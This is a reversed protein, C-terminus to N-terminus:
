LITQKGNTRLVLKTPEEVNYGQNTLKKWQEHQYIYQMGRSWALVRIPMGFFTIRKGKLRWVRPPLESQRDQIDGEGLSEGSPNVVDRDRIQKFFYKLTYSFAYGPQGGYKLVEPKSFGRRWFSQLRHFFERDFFRDNDVRLATTFYLLLHVHPNFDEHREIVRVFEIPGLPKYKRRLTQIYATTDRSVWWWRLHRCRRGPISERNYTLTNFVYHTYSVSM